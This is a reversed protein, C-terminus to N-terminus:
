ESERTLGRAAEFSEFLPQRLGRGAGWGKGSLRVLATHGTDPESGVSTEHGCPPLMKGGLM